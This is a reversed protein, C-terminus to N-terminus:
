IMHVLVHDYDLHDQVSKPRELIIPLSTLRDLILTPFLCFEQSTSYGLSKLKQYPTLDNIGSHTRITNYVKQWWAGLRIFGLESKVKLLYPIYLEYDDTQHSREVFPNDEPHGKRIIKRTVGLPQWFHKITREFAGPLCANFEKGGDSWINLINNFGFLRLWWVIMKGFVQGCAWDLSYSWAFFRIRTIPEEFTWQYQPIFNSGEIYEYIELPLTGKDLIDKTDMEAEEFPLLKDWQYKIRHYERRVRKKKRALKKVKLIKGITSEPILVDDRIAIYWRLRRKGFGTEKRRKVILDIMEQPTTNPHPTKPTHPKDTLDEEKEKEISLYVTNRSCGMEEATRKINGNNLRLNELLTKRAFEEGTERKLMVYSQSIITM